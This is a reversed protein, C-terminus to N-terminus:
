AKTFAAEYRLAGSADLMRIARLHSAPVDVTMGLSGTGDQLHLHGLAAPRGGGTTTIEVTYDATWERPAQLNVFVWAQDEGYALARCTAKGSSSVALATRVGSDGDGVGRGVLLGSAAALLVVAAAVAVRAVASWKGRGRRRRRADRRPTVPALAPRDRDASGIAALVRSEFGISPDMETALLLLPDATTALEDVLRRCSPCAGLHALAEARDSGSLMGLALEPALAEVEPCGATM